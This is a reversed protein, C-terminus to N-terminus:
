HTLAERGFEPDVTRVQAVLRCGVGVGLEARVAQKDVEPFSRSSEDHSHPSEEPTNRQNSFIRRQPQTYLFDPALPLSDSNSQTPFPHPLPSPSFSHNSLTSHM